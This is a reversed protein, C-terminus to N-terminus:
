LFIQDECYNVVKCGFPIKTLHCLYSSHMIKIVKINSHLNYIPKISSGCGCGFNIFIKEINLPIYNMEMCGNYSLENITEPLNVLSQNFNCKIDL